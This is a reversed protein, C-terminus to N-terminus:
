APSLAVLLGPHDTAGRLDITGSEAVALGPAAVVVQPGGGDDVATSGDPFCSRLDPDDAPGLNLDGGVVVPGRRAAVVEDFLYRCQAVAVDRRTYALHTTCASLAPSAVDLCLWSRQEPDAPDQAPHIGGEATAAWRSLLGNGYQEGNRCRYPEGTTADRAPQFASTVAAGPVAEALARELAEVDDGCVENLTVLDPAEARLVAAAEATSRGTYCAAIGSSCLNLQLLRVAPPAPATTSLATTSPMEAPVAVPVPAAPVPAAPVPAAPAASTSACGAVLALLLVLPATRRRWREVM